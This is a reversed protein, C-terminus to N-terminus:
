GEEENGGEEQDDDLPTWTVPRQGSSRLLGAPGDRLISLAVPPAGGERLVGEGVGVAAKREQLGMAELAL